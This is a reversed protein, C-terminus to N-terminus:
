FALGELDVHSLFMHVRVSQPLMCLAQISRCCTRQTYKIAEVKTTNQKTKKGKETTYSEQSYSHTPSQKKHRRKPDDGKTQKM